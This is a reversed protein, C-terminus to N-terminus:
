KRRLGLGYRATVRAVDKRALLESLAVEILGSWSIPTGARKLELMKEEAAYAVDAAITASVRQLAGEQKKTAM